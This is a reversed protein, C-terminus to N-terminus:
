WRSMRRFARAGADYKGINNTIETHCLNLLDLALEGRAGCIARCAEVAYVLARNPYQSCGIRFLGRDENVVFQRAYQKAERLLIEEDQLEEPTLDVTFGDSRSVGPRCRCERAMRLYAKTIREVEDDEQVITWNNVRNIEKSVL